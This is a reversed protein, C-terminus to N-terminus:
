GTVAKAANRLDGLTLEHRASSGALCYDDDEDPEACRAAEAFPKLAKRYREKELMMDRLKTLYKQKETDTM